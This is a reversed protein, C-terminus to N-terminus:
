CIIVKKEILNSIHLVRPEYTNHIQDETYVKRATEVAIAAHILTITEHLNNIEENLRTVEKFATVISNIQEDTLDNADKKTAAIDFDLQYCKAELM